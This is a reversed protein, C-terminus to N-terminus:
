IKWNCKWHILKEELEFNWWNGLYYSRNLIKKLFIYREWNWFSQNSFMRFSDSFHFLLTFVVVIFQQFRNITEFLLFLNKLNTTRKWVFPQCFDRSTKKVFFNLSNLSFNRFLFFCSEPWFTNRISKSLNWVPNELRSLQIETKAVLNVLDYGVNRM